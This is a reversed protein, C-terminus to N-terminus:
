DPRRPKALENIIRALSAVTELLKGRIDANEPRGACDRLEMRMEALRVAIQASNEAGRRMM